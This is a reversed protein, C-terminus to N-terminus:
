PDLVSTVGFPPRRLAGARRRQRVCLQNLRLQAVMVELTFLLVLAGTEMALLLLAAAAPPETM